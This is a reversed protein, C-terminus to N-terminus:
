SSLEAFFINQSLSVSVASICHGAAWDSKTDNRYLLDASWIRQKKTVGGFRMFRDTIQNWCWHLATTFWPWTSWHLWMTPVYSILCFCVAFQSSDWRMLLCCESKSCIWRIGRFHWSSCRNGRIAPVPGCVVLVTGWRTNSCLMCGGPLCLVM